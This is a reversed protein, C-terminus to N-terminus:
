FTITIRDDVDTVGATSWAAREADEREAWSHVTGSLTVHGDQEKVIIQRADSEASRHLAAKIHSTVNRASAHPVLEVLNRIGRVGGLRSVALEAARRQYDHCVTGTLAVWGNEVLVHIDEHPVESDRELAKVAQLAIDTDSQDHAIPVVVSLEQVVARVGAVRGAAVEAYRRQVYDDVTGSLTVVGDRVATIINRDNIRPEWVLEAIVDQQLEIDTKM